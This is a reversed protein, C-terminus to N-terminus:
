HGVGWSQEQPQSDEQSKWFWFHRQGQPTLWRPGPCEAWHTLSLAWTLLHWPPCWLVESGWSGPEGLRLSQKGVHTIRPAGAECPASSKSSTCSTALTSVSLVAVHNLSLTSHRVALRCRLRTLVSRGTSRPEMSSAEQWWQPTPKRTSEQLGPASVGDSNFTELCLEPSSSLM